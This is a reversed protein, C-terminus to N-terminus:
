NRLWKPQMTRALILKTKWLKFKLNLVVIIQEKIPAGSEIDCFGNVM